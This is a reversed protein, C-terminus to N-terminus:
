DDQTERERLEDRAESLSMERLLGSVLLLLDAGMPVLILFLKAFWM